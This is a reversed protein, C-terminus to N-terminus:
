RGAIVRIAGLNSTQRKKKNKHIHNAQSIINTTDLTHTVTHIHRTHTVTHIHADSIEENCIIPNHLAHREKHPTHRSHIVHTHIKYTHSMHRHTTQKKHSAQTHLYRTCKHKHTARKYQTIYTHTVHTHKYKNQSAHIHSIQWTHRSHTTNKKKKTNM